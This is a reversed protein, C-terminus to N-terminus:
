CLSSRSQGQRERRDNSSQPSLTAEQDAKPSKIIVTHPTIQQCSGLVRTWGKTLLSHLLCGRRPYHSRPESADDLLRGMVGLHSATAFLVCRREPIHLPICDDNAWRSFPLHCQSVLLPFFFIILSLSRQAPPRGQPKSFQSKQSAGHPTRAILKLHKVMVSAAKKNLLSSACGEHSPLVDGWRFARAKSPLRLTTQWATDWPQGAKKGRSVLCGRDAFSPYRSPM